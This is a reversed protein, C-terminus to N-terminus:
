EKARLTTVGILRDHHDSTGNYYVYITYNNKTVQHSGEFYTADITQADRDFVAFKFDYFGQKLFMAKSYSNREFNYEMESSEDFM